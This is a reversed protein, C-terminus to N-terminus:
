RIFFYLQVPYGINSGFHQTIAPQAFHLNPCVPAQVQCYCSVASIICFFTAYPFWTFIQNPRRLEIPVPKSWSFATLLIGSTPPPPSKLPLFPSTSQVELQFLKVFPPELASFVFNDALVRNPQWPSKRDATTYYGTTRPASKRRVPVKVHGDSPVVSIIVFLTPMAFGPPFKTQAAYSFPFQSQGDFATLYYWEDHSTCVKCTPLSWHVTSGTRVVKRYTARFGLFFNNDVSSPTDANGCGFPPQDLFFACWM